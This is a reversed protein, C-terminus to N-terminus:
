VPVYIEFGIIGFMIEVPRATLEDKRFVHQVLLVIHLRNNLFIRTLRSIPKYKLYSIVKLQRMIRCNKTRANVAKEIPLFCPFLLFLRFFLPRVINAGVQPNRLMFRLLRAIMSRGGALHTKLIFLPHSKFLTKALGEDTLKTAM